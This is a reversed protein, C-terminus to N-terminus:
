ASIRARGGVSAAIRALERLDPGTLPRRRPMPLGPEGFRAGAGAVIRDLDAPVGAGGVIASACALGQAMARAVGDGADPDAPGRADGVAVLGPLPAAAAPSSPRRAAAPSGGAGPSRRERLVAIGTLPDASRPDVWDSILPLREAAAQFGDPMRLASIAAGPDNAPEETPDDAHDDGADPIGFTVTFTNNDGPAARCTYGDFGGGAPVRFDVPGPQEPWRVAYCRSYYTTTPRRDARDAHTGYGLDALWGATRTGSGTADVALDTSLVGGGVVIGTLRSGDTRLSTVSTGCHVRVGPEREAVRRLVWDLLPRRMALTLRTGAVDGAPVERAGAALLLALVDPLESALLQHFDSGFVHAHQVQPAGDRVWTAATRRGLPAAARDRELVDVPVGGRALALATTLGAVGAGLIVVRGTMQDGRNLQEPAM